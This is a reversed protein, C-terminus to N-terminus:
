DGDDVDMLIVVGFFTVLCRDHHMILLSREFSDDICADLPIRVNDQTQLLFHVCDNLSNQVAIAAHFRSVLSTLQSFELKRSWPLSTGGM